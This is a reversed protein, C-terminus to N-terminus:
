FGKYSVIPGVHKSTCDKLFLFENQICETSLNSTNYQCVTDIFTKWHKWHKKVTWHGCDIVHVIAIYVSTYIHVVTWNVCDIVHGIAIDVLTYIYASCATWNVCDIVHEIAINVLKYIIWFQFKSLWQHWNKSVLLLMVDLYAVLKTIILAMVLSFVTFNICISIYSALRRWSKVPPFM